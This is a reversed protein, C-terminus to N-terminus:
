SIFPVYGQVDVIVHSRGLGLCHIAISNEGGVSSLALNALTLGGTAGNINSATPVPLEDSLDEGRISLFRAGETQTITINVFVAEAIDNGQYASSVAVAM